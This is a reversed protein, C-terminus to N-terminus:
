ITIFIYILARRAKNYIPHSLFQNKTKKPLSILKNNSSTPKNLNTISHTNLPRSENVSQPTQQNPLLYSRSSIQCGHKLNSVVNISSQNTFYNHTNLNIASNNPDPPFPPLPKKLTPIMGKSFGRAVRTPSCSPITPNCIYRRHKDYSTMTSNRTILSDPAVLQTTKHEKSPPSKSHLFSPSM